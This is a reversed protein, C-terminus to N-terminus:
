PKARCHEPPWALHERVPFAWAGRVPTDFDPTDQLWTALEYGLRNELMAASQIEAQANAWLRVWM